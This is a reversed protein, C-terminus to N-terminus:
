TADCIRRPQQPKNSQVASEEDEEVLVVLILFQRLTPDGELWNLPSHPIVECWISFIM